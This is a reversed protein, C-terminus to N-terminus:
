ISPNKPYIGTVRLPGVTVPQDEAFPVRRGSQVRHERFFAQKRPRPEIVITLISGAQDPMDAVVDWAHFDRRTRQPMAQRYSTTHRQRRLPVSDLSSGEDNETITLQIFAGVPLRNQERRMMLETMETCDDIVVLDLAESCHLVHDIEIRECVLPAYKAPSHLFNVTVVQCCDLIGKTLCGEIGAPRAGNYRVRHFAFPDAEHFSSKRPVVLRRVILLQRLSQPFQLQGTSFRM